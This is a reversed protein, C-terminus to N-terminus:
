TILAWIFSRFKIKSSRILCRWQLRQNLRLARAELAGANANPARILSALILAETRDLGHPNKGFLGRSAAAIGAFEGRFTVLNLYAELIESKSWRQEIERALFIQGTKQTLTRQRAKVSLDKNLFSALQMTITSAGRLGSGSVYGIAAAGLASYDVGDHSYFRKDESCIVAEKLSPSIDDLKRGTSGEGRGTPECSM